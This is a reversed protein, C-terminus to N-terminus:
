ASADPRAGTFGPGDTAVGERRSRTSRMASVTARATPAKSKRARRNSPWLIAQGSRARPRTSRSSRQVDYLAARLSSAPARSETRLARSREKYESTSATSRRKSRELHTRGHFAREATEDAESERHEEGGLPGLRQALRIQDTQQRVRDNSLTLHRIQHTAVAQRKSGGLAVPRIQAVQARVGVHHATHAAARRALGGAGRHGLCTRRRRGLRRGGSHRRGGP